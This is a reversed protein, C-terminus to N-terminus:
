ERATLFAHAERSTRFYYRWGQRDAEGKQRDETRFRTSRPNIWAYHRRNPDCNPAIIVGVADEDGRPEILEEVDRVWQPAMMTMVRGSALQAEFNVMSVWVFGSKKKVEAKVHAVLEEESNFILSPPRPPLGCKAAQHDYCECFKNPPLKRKPPAQHKM